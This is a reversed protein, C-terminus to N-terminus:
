TKVVFTYTKTAILGPRSSDTAEVTFTFTGAKTPTGSIKGKSASLSLGSPLVSAVLKWTYPSTGGSASLTVSYAVKVTAEPLAAPSIAMDVVISYTMKAIQPPSSSDTVGLTFTFTGARTPTGFIVGKPGSLSLGAPLTGSTLKWADPSTGGVVPLTVSYATKVKAAPLKAPTVPGSHASANGTGVGNIAAVTFTYRDGNTLGTVTEATAASAFSKPTQASAGLYPTVVYGTISAGGTSSPATWALAASSNGAVAIGTIPAGPVTAPTVANSAASASGIGASNTAAVTFTYATGNTLGTVTTSTAAPNGSTTLGSCGPCAPSPTVTYSTITAGNNSPATWTVSASANGGTATVSTPAGPVPAPTVNETVSATSETFQSSSAPVFTATILYPGGSSVLQNTSCAASGGSVPVINSLGGNCDLSLVGARPSVTFIVSGQPSDGVSAVPTVDASFTVTEGTVSTGPNGGASSAGSSSTLVTSTVAAALVEAGFTGYSPEFVFSGTGATGISAFSGSDGGSSVVEFAEGPAPTFGALVVSLTGGLNAGSSVSLQSFGVPSTSAPTPGAVLVSLNGGSQTYAGSVSLVGPAAASGPAVTGGTVSLGGEVVGTGTLLGGTLEVSSSLTASNALVTQGGSQVYGASVGLTSDFPVEVTGGSLALAGGITGSGVLVGGTLSVNAALEGSGLMTSGASQTYGGAVGLTSDDSFDGAQGVTVRGANTLAGTVSLQAGSEVTLSGGATIASLGDVGDFQGSANVTLNAALTTVPGPLRFQSSGPCSQGPPCGVGAGYSGGTLTGGSLNTLNEVTFVSSGGVAMEGDNTLTGYITTLEGLESELTGTNLLVQGAAVTFTAEGGVGGKDFDITGGNVFGEPASVDLGGGGQPELLQGPSSKGELTSAGTLVIDSQGPGTYDLTASSVTVGQGSTNGAETFTGGTETFTGSFGSGAGAALSGTSENDFSEGGSVSITSESVFSGENGILGPGEFELADSPFAGAVVNGTNTVSGTITVSGLAGGPATNELVGSNTLMQGAAITLMVSGGANFDITGGNVFGTPTNIVLPNSPGGGDLELIQDPVTAGELTMVGGSAMIESTGTGSYELLTPTPPPGGSPPGAITVTAGTTTGDGEIFTFGAGGGSFGAPAGVPGTTNISGGSDNDFTGVYFASLVSASIDLPGANDFTIPIPPGSAPPAAVISLPQEGIVNVTGANTFTEGSGISLSGSGSQGATGFDITGGNSFGSPFTLGSGPPVELLQKSSSAGTVAVSGTAVIDSAGPGEYALMAGQVTVPAGTTTGGDETFTGGTETLSGNASSGSQPGASSISGGADNLFSVGSSVAGDASPSNSIEVSGKNDFVAPGGTGGMTQLEVPDAVLVTGTNTLTQGAGIGLTLPPCSGSCGGVELTGGNTFNGPVSVQGGACGAVVQGSTSAGELTGGCLAFDSSGMGELDLTGNVSVPAGETTGGEEVFTSGPVVHIGGGFAIGATADDILAGSANLMTTGGEVFFQGPPEGVGSASVVLTGQLASATRTALFVVLVYFVSGAAVTLTDGAGLLLGGVNPGGDFSISSTGAPICAYNSQGPVSDISWNGPDSWSVGDGAGTWTDASGDTPCTPVQPASARGRAARRTTVQRASEHRSATHSRHKKAMAANPVLRASPVPFHAPAGAMSAPRTVPRRAAAAASAHGAEVLGACLLTLAALRVLRMGGLRHDGEDRPRRIRPDM